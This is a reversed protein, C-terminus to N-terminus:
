FRASVKLGFTPSEVTANKSFHLVYDGLSTMGWGTSLGSSTALPLEMSSGFFAVPSAVNISVMCTRRTMPARTQTAMHDIRLETGSLKMKFGDGIFLGRAFKRLGPVRSVADEASQVPHTVTRSVNKPTYVDALCPKVVGTLMVSIM